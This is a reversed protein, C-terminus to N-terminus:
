IRKRAEYKSINERIRELELENLHYQRGTITIPAGIKCVLDTEPIYSIDERKPWLFSRCPYDPHMFNVCIDKQERDVDVVFGIWYKEDYNCVVFDSEKISVAANAKIIKGSLIDFKIAFEEDSSVRKAGIISNRIPVFQHYNRTGPLTHTKSFRDSLRSRVIDMEEKSIYKSVIGKVENRCFNFVEEATIIQNSFTRQLSARATLRKVTGGIGDCSSKGHSTAFFNWNCQLGFDNKHLCINLFNKCNKYQGACGDSFYHIKTINPNINM